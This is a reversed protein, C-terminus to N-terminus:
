RYRVTTKNRAANWSIRGGQFDQALGGAIPFPYSSPLRLRSREAGLGAYRKMIAGYVERVGTTRSWYITASRGRNDRFNQVRSGPRQGAYLESSPLGLPGEAHRLARYRKRFAGHVSRAGTQTSWYVDRKAFWTGRGRGAPHEGWYPLGVGGEGGHKAAYRYIETGVAYGMLRSVRKRLAPLRSYVFKGPCETSKADRHGSIADMRRGNIPQKSFAGRYNGDLKWAIVHATKEMMAATPAVKQFSGMLSIGFTNTNYAGGAHAGRVPVHMGGYRGEFARGFRDVLVNYGIDCWGRGKVHYAYTGRIVAAAEDKKYSNSGATHHVFAARITKTYQPRTCAAGNHGRLKENAGWGRRTIIAPRPYPARGAETDPTVADGPDQPPDADEPRTGPDVLVVSAGPVTSGDPATVTAEVGDAREVWLPDTGTRSEAEADKDGAPLTQWGSWTGGSRVRVRAVLRDSDARRPWTVGVMRFPETPQVGTGAVSADPLAELPIEWVGDQDPGSPVTHSNPESSALDPAAAALTGTLAVALLLPLSKNM